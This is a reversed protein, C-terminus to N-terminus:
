PFPYLGTTVKTYLEGHMPGRQLFTRFDELPFSGARHLVVESVLRRIEPQHILVALWM